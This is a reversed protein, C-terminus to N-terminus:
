PGPESWRPCSDTLFSPFWSVLISSAPPEPVGEHPPQDVSLCQPASRHLAQSALMGCRPWAALRAMRLAQTGPTSGLGVRSDPTQSPIGHLRCKSGRNTLILLGYDTPWMWDAVM